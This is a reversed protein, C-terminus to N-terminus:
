LIRIKLEMQIEGKPIKVKRSAPCLTETNQLFETKGINQLGNFYSSRYVKRM